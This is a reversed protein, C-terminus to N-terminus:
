TGITDGNIPHVRVESAPSADPTAQLHPVSCFLYEAALIYELICTRYWLKLRAIDVGDARHSSISILLTTNQDVSIVM